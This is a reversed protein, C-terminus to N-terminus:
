PCRLSNEGKDRTDYWGQVSSGDNGSLTTIQSTYVVFLRDFPCALEERTLGKM